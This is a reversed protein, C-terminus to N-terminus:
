FQIFDCFSLNQPFDNNEFMSHEMCLHTSPGMNVVMDDTEQLEVWGGPKLLRHLEPILKTVFFIM